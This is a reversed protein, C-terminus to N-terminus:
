SIIFGMSDVYMIYNSDNTTIVIISHSNVNKNAYVLFLSICTVSSCLTIFVYYKM